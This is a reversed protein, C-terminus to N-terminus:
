KPTTPKELFEKVIKACEPDEDQLMPEFQKKFQDKENFYTDMLSFMMALKDYMKEKKLHQYIVLYANNTDMKRALDVFYTMGGAEGIILIDDWTIQKRTPIKVQELLQLAIAMGRAREEDTKVLGTIIQSFSSGTGVTASTAEFKNTEVFMEPYSKSLHEYEILSLEKKDPFVKKKLRELSSQPPREEVIREESHSHLSLSFILILPLFFSKM